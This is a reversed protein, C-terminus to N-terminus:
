GNQCRSNGAQERRQYGSGDNGFEVKEVEALNAPRASTVITAPDIAPNMPFVHMYKVSALADFRSARAEIACRGNLCLVPAKTNSLMDKKFAAM